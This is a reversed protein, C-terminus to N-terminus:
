KMMVKKTRVTGDSYIEKVINIGKGARDLQTGNISYIMTRVVEGNNEKGDTIERIGNVEQSKEGNNKIIIDFVMVSSFDAQLKVFVKDTGEYGIVSKKIYRQTKSITVSDLKVWNDVNTTDTSVYIDARPHNNASGNGVFTVVDFPGQFAETSEISCSYPDNHVGDSKRPNGFQINNSSAGFDLSTEGRYRKTENSDDVDAVPGNNEWLAGQGYSKFEWGKGPNWLTLKNAPGDIVIITSDTVGDSAKVTEEHTTYFNYGDKDGETYFYRKSEGNAWDTKNADFHSVVDIRVEKGKVFIDQSVTESQKKDGLEGTFATLTTYSKIEIPETYITSENAKNSGAINYYINAGEETTSLTVVSKGDQQEVSIVPVATTTYINVTFEAVESPTYGDAYAVAKILTGAETVTVPGTYVTSQPTPETGDTTYYIVANRTGSSITVDTSLHAYAETFTPATAQPVDAKTSSVFAVANVIFDYIFNNDAPYNQNEFSYPLYLYTNRGANHMHIATVGNATALVKDAAFYSGEPIEVGTLSGDALMTLKGNEDVYSLGTDMVKFLSNDADAADVDAINTGTTVAKGYGWTEYLGANFNLVPTYAIAEKLVGAFPTAPNIANSVVVADYGLLAQKDIASVDGAVDITTLNGGYSEAVMGLVSHYLDGEQSYGPYTSDFIYALKAAGMEQDEIVEIYYLHCGNTNYIQIDYTGDENPTDSLDTPVLWEQDTYEKPASVTEGTPSKLQTGSTGHGVYLNVGRADTTKHSEVGMKITAGAKVGPIIFYNKKNSGLWLYSAGHYPGFGAGTSSLDGYNVAIALSRATTNTYLLGNLEAITEGNAMLTTGDATGSATVEWFCNNRSLDTPGKDVDAAKEIDSWDAGTILNTVTTQSWNTFDWKRNEANSTLSQALLIVGGLLTLIKKM